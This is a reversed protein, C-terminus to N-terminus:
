LFKSKIKEVFADYLDPALAGSSCMLVAKYLEDIKADHLAFYMIVGVIGGAVSNKIYLLWHYQKKSFLMKALVGLSSLVAVIWGGRRFDEAARAFDPDTGSM